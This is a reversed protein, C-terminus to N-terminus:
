VKLIMLNPLRRDKLFRRFKGYDKMKMTDTIWITQATENEDIFAYPLEFPIQKELLSSEDAASLNKLKVETALKLEPLEAKFIKMAALYLLVDEAKINRLRSENQNINKLGKWWINKTKEVVGRKVTAEAAKDKLAEKIKQYDKTRDDVSLFEKELANRMTKKTRKDLWQNYTHYSRKKNYLTQPEDKHHHKFYQEIVYNLRAPNGENATLITYFEPLHQEIHKLLQQYFFDGPLQIMPEVDEEQTYLLNNVREEIDTREKLNIFYYDEITATKTEIKRLVSNLHSVKQEFYNRFFTYIGVDKLEVGNLFPHQQLLNLQGFINPLKDQERGWFAM